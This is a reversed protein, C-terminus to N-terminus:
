SRKEIQPKPKIIEPNEGTKPQLAEPKSLIFPLIKLVFNLRQTWSLKIINEKIKKIEDFVLGSLIDKIEDQSAGEIKEINEDTNFLSM